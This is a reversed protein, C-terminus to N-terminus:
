RAARHRPSGLRTTVEKDAESHIFVPTEFDCLRRVQELELERVVARHRHALNPDAFGDIVVFVFRGLQDALGVLVALGPTAPELGTEPM